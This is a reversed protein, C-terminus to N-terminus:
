NTQEMPSGPAGPWRRETGVDDQDPDALGGDALARRVASAWDDGRAPDSWLYHAFLLLEDSPTQEIELYQLVMYYSARFAENITLTAPLEADTM